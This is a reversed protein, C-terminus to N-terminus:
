PPLNSTGWGVSLTDGVKVGYEEAVSKSILVASPNKAILNLYDYIHHDLLHDRLWATEGFAKTDIGM